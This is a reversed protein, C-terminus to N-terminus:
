GVSNTPSGLELIPNWLSLKYIIQYATCVKTKKRYLYSYYNTYLSGAVAAM